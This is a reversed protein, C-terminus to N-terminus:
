KASGHMGEQASCVAIWVRRVAIWVRRLLLLGSKLYSGVGSGEVGEQACSQQVSLSSSHWAGSAPNLRAPSRFHSDTLICQSAMIAESSGGM